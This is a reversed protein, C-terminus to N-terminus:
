IGHIRGVSVQQHEGALADVPNSHIWASLFDTQVRAPSFFSFFLVALGARSRRSVISVILAMAARSCKPVELAALAFSCLYM